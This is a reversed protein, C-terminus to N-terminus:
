WSSLGKSRWQNDAICVYLYAENNVTGYCVQGKKGASTITPIVKEPIMHQNSLPINSSQVSIDADTTNDSVYCKNSESPYASARVNVGIVQANAGTNCKLVSNGSVSIAFAGEGINSNGDCVINGQADGNNGIGNWSLRNCNYFTNSRVNCTISHWSQFGANASGIVSNGIFSNKKGGICLLGNNLSDIVQCGSVLFKSSGDSGTYSGAALYIGSELTKLTRCNSVIGSSCDQIRLGRLTEFVECNKMFVSDCARIRCAGGDSLTVKQAWM